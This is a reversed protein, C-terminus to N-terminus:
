DEIIEYQDTIEEEEEVQEEEKVPEAEPEEEEDEDDTLPKKQYIKALKKQRWFILALIISALLVMYIWVANSSLLFYPPVVVKITRMDYNEPSELLFAKVKFHYTGAPLGSYSVMRSKEANKWDQDYGDLMYQYHIRHQLQYNLSAFRFTFVSNHSPLTVSKSEPVYYDYTSTLRPSQQEDNLYFDTIRLKLLSGTKTILKSRDVTYYGDFTGFLVNGNPLSIAAGESCQTDDVGDLNSFTTFIKKKTDFSCLIHDTGFWVNNKQDFTISRIEESPLGDQAGYNEFEWNGYKDKGVACSLGGGNTGVWMKGQKDSALCVVDNSMLGKDPDSPQELRQITVNNNRLRMILIGDTTGAWVSGDKALAITRVKMYSNYPYRKLANQSHLFVERGGKSKSLINVGGGYTAVWINGSNDEVAAYASNASLSWADRDNHGYNVIHYGSGGNPAIKFLGYDKSCMWYNGKSDKTIGYPRGIPHGKSDHSIVTRQGDPRIMFLANNKNGLILLQRQSDYYMARIENDLMSESEPILRTRTITNKLIELKELGRRTTSEWVVGEDLALAANLTNSLNWPNSPDNHFYEIEDKERNYYGYGGHNMIIWLVGGSEQFTAGKSSFEPVLVRQEFHKVDGTEQRLRYAGTNFDSFWILGHRDVYLSTIEQGIDKILRPEQGYSFVMIKGSRTGVFINYGNSYLCTVYEDTFYGKREVSQNSMDLLHLGKDTGVWIDSHYGEVMSTVTMNATTLLETKVGNRDLRMKYLGVGDFSGLVDGDSTLALPYNTRFESSGSVEALPNEIQDRLRNMVFVRGDYMRMWVNQSRDITLDMIRNHLNKIHSGNGTQYNYFHYGDFRSLGNWTAIWIYGYDDHTMYAIANSALGDDTSYHSLSAQLQQARVNAPVSLLLAALLTSLYLKINTTTM